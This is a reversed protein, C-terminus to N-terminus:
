YDYGGGRGRGFPGRPIARPIPAMLATKGTYPNMGYQSGWARSMGYKPSEGYSPAPWPVFEGMLRLFDRKMSQTEQEDQRANSRRATLTGALLAIGKAMPDREGSDPDLAINSPTPADKWVWGRDALRYLSQLFVSAALSRLDRVMDVFGKAADEGFNEEIGRHIARLRPVGLDSHSAGYGSYYEARTSMGTEAVIDYISKM